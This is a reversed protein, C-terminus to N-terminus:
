RSSEPITTTTTGTTSSVSFDKPTLQNDRHTDLVGFLFDIEEDTVHRSIRAGRLREKFTAKDMTRRTRDNDDDDNAAIGDPLIMKKVTYDLADMDSLANIFTQIEAQRETARQQLVRRRLFSSYTGAVVIALTLSGGTILSFAFKSEELGHLLNMGFLGTIATTMGTAVAVISLHVNMRVLRNRYGALALSIFEQKSQIRSSLYQIEQLLAQIQRSYVSLMLEVSEHRTMDVPIGTRRADMQETVLIKLMLQDDNLITTLCDLSQTVQLEFKQLADKLPVLQHVGGIGIPQRQYGFLSSNNNNNGRTRNDTNEDFVDNSAQALFDEVIPELIRIRRHYTDVTDRLVAELFVLEPPEQGEPITTTAAETTTTSTTTMTEQINESTARPPAPYHYKQYISVLDNAFSEAMKTHADLISVSDHGAVARITGFSVLLCDKRPVIATPPRTRRRRRSQQQQQQQQQHHHHPLPPQRQSSSSSSADYTTSPNEQQLQQEQQEKQSTLHLSVFDRPLLNTRKMIEMSTMPYTVKQSEHYTIETVTFREDNGGMSSLSTFQRHHNHHYRDNNDYSSGSFRVDHMGPSRGGSPSPHNSFKTTTKTTDKETYIGQEEENQTM